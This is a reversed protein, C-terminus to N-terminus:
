MKGGKGLLLVYFLYSSSWPVMCSPSIVAVRTPVDKNNLNGSQAEGFVLDVPRTSKQNYDM